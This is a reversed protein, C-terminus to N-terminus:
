FFNYVNSLVNILKSVNHDEFEIALIKKVCRMNELDTDNIKDTFHLKNLYYLVDNKTEM